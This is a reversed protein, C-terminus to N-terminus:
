TSPVLLSVVLEFTQSEFMRLDRSASALFTCSTRDSNIRQALGVMRSSVDVGYYEDFEPSLARTLRGFGCGFDLARARGHPYGLSRATELLGGVDAEDTALFKELEWRGGKKEPDSLIAWFPDLSALDNWEQQERRLQLPHGPNV